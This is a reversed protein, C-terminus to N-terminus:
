LRVEKRYVRRSTLEDVGFDVLTHIQDRAEADNKRIEQFMDFVSAAICAFEKAIEDVPGMLEVKDKQSTIM